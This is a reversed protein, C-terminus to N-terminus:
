IMERWYVDLSENRGERRVRKMWRVVQLGREKLVCELKDVIMAGVAFM